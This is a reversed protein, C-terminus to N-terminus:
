WSGSAGGGGSRGGGGSYGSDSSSSGSARSRRRRREDDDDDYQRGRRGGAGFATFFTFTTSLYSILILPMWREWGIGENGSSFTLALAAVVAVAVIAWRGFFALPGRRWAARIAFLPVLLFPLLFIGAAVMLPVPMRNDPEPLPTGDIVGIVADSARALGGAYDGDRFAPALYEDIVRAAVEDSLTQELGYGVQIRMRREDKAVVILVGDDIGARGPRWQEFVRQAYAEISEPATAAVMLLMLQSGKRRQLELSKARLSALAADDLTGTTDTAPSALRPIAAVTAAPRAGASSTDSTTTAGSAMDTAATGDDAVPAAPRAASTEVAAPAALASHVPGCLALLAALGAAWGRLRGRRVRAEAM